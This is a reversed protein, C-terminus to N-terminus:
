KKDRMENIVDILENLVDYEKATVVYREEASMNKFEEFSPLNLKKIEKEEEIIEVVINLNHTFASRLIFEILWDNLDPTYYDKAKCDYIYIYDGYKIRTPVEEGKAIKNLLDIIKM